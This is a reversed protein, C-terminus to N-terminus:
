LKIVVYNCSNFMKTRKYSMLAAEKEALLKSEAEIVFKEFGKNSRMWYNHLIILYKNNTKDNTIIDKLTEKKNYKDFISTIKSFISKTEKIHIPGAPVPVDPLKKM